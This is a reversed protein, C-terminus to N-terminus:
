KEAGCLSLQNVTHVLSKLQRRKSRWVLICILNICLFKQLLVVACCLHHPIFVCLSGPRVVSVDIIDILLCHHAGSVSLIIFSQPM